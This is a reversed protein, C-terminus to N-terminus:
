HDRVYLKSDGYGPYAALLRFHAAFWTQLAPTWSIRAGVGGSLWVYRAKGFIAEWGAVV